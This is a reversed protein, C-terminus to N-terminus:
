EGSHHSELHNKMLVWSVWALRWGGVWGVVWLKCYSM